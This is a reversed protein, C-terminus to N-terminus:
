GAPGDSERGRVRAGAIYFCGAALLISAVVIVSAQTGPNKLEEMLDSALLGAKGVNVEVARAAIKSNSPTAVDLPADEPPAAKWYVLGVGSMGLLLVLVGIFRLREVVRASSAPRPTPNTMAMHKSRSRNWHM